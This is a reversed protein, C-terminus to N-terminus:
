AFISNKIREATEKDKLVEIIALSFDAAKGMGKSTIINGDVVCGTDVIEAGDLYQEFGPYCIAKKGKLLGKEGLIRPAACIACVYKGEDAAKDIFEGVKSNARLNDAGPLGGPLIVADIDVASVYDIVKDAIVNIGHAGTVLPTKNISVSTVEIGARRLMDIPTLAEIEEFGDALFLYVM